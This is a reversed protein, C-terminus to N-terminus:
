YELCTQLPKEWKKFSNAEQASSVHSNPYLKKLTKVPHCFKQLHSYEIENYFDVFKKLTAVCYCIM